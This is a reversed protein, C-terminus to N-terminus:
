PDIKGYPPKWSIYAMYLAEIEPRFKLSDEWM